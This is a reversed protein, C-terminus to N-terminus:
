QILYRSLWFLGASLLMSVPLTFVWTLAINRITKYQLNKLGGDAVMAGAIGSSLTHTTSVPLGFGSALGVTAAAVLEASAGQAYNLHSKGIKEGVTVVIRKWGVMTGFGLALSIMLKIWNPAFDISARIGSEEKALQARLQSKSNTSLPLSPDDLLIRTNLSIDMINKRLALKDKGGSKEYAEFEMLDKDLQALAVQGKSGLAENDITRIIKHASEVQRHLESPDIDARIAYIHPLACVLILMVLGIGKQGDNNGHAFSVLGCTAILITRIWSPPSDNENPSKFLEKKSNPKATIAILKMLFIALGFGIIPAMLLGSFVSKIKPYNILDLGHEVGPLFAYGLGVGLIAGILTHSSSSPIGFYWTGLNWLIASVLISLVMMLNQLNSQELIMEVPILHLISLGVGIGGALVGLFNLAGSFIVAHLPKLSKTYIVTAVANATDHFGNIFEFFFAAFLALALLLFIGTEIGFM